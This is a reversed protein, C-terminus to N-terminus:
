GKAMPATPSRASSTDPQINGELGFHSYSEDKYATWGAWRSSSGIWSVHSFGRRYPTYNAKLWLRLEVYHGHRIPCDV